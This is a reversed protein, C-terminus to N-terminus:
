TYNKVGVVSENTKNFSLILRMDLTSVLSQPHLKIQISNQFTSPIQIHFIFPSPMHSSSAHKLPSSICPVNM